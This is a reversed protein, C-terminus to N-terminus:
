EEADERQRQKVAEIMGSLDYADGGVAMPYSYADESAQILEVVNVDRRMYEPPNELNEKATMSILTMVSIKDNIDLVRGNKWERVIKNYKGVKRM